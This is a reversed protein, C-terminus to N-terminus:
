KLRRVTFNVTYEQRSPNANDRGIDLVATSQLISIENDQYRNLANACAQANQHATTADAARSRVQLGQVIDTGGFSHEPPVAAYEFLGMCDDPNAPMFGRKITPLKTGDIIKLALVAAALDLLNTM